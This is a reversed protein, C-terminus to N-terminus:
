VPAPEATDGEIFAQWAQQLERRIQSVRGPTVRNRKAVDRTAERRALQKAIRRKATPLSRLWAAFDIRTAAIAAPGATKDEIIMEQWEGQAPDFVDLSRM